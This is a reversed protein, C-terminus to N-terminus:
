GTCLRLVPSLATHLVPPAPHEHLLILISKNKDGGGLFLQPLIALGQAFCFNAVFDLFMMNFAAM